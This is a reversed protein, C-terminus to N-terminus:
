PVEKNKDAYTKYIVCFDDGKFGRMTRSFLESAPQQRTASLEGTSVSLNGDWFNANQRRLGDKKHGLIGKSPVPSGGGLV